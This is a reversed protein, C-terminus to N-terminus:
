MCIHIECACTSRSDVAIARLDHLHLDVGGLIDDEGGRLVKAYLDLVGADIVYVCARMSEHLIMDGLPKHELVVCSQTIAYAM